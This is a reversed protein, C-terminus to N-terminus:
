PDAGADAQQGDDGGEQGAHDPPRPVAGQALQAFGDLGHGVAQAEIVGVVPQRDPVLAVGFHVGLHGGDELDADGEAFDEVRAQLGADVGASLPALLGPDGLPHGVASAGLARHFLVDAVAPQPNLVAAGGFLAGDSDAGVDGVQLAVGLGQGFGSVGGVGGVAGLALEQGIHAVLNARGQVADDAHGLGQGAGIQVLTLALHQVQDVRGAARELGQETVDEIQRADFRAPQLQAVFGVVQGAGDLFRGLEVGGGGAVLPQLEEDLDRGFGAGPNVAVRHAQLLDQGVQDGVGDLEGGGAEDAQRDVGLRLAQAEHNLVGADAKVGLRAVPQEAAKFM